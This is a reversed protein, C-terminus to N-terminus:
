VEKCSAISEVTQEICKFVGFNGGGRWKLEKSIGGEEGAIVRELRKIAFKLSQESTDIGIYRRKLKHSVAATTGSGLYPDLVIDGQNTAIEIIRQLLSEPKPTDFLQQEDEFLAMFQKKAATTTGVDEAKWLTQPVVSPNSDRLFKKIRPVKNGDEGFWINDQEIEKSMRKESYIWCRGRPPWHEKGTKPSVISYYQTKAAHGAQATATISQWPGRPDNDPNKYRNVLEPAEIKNRVAKFRDPNKAYVLIYEHNHSFATRNERTSRHEWVVTAVYKEMGFSTDCLVKLYAMEADDISIWISGDDALMEWVLPLLGSMEGIWSDHTANDKYCAYEEGNRYPPDMYICKVTGAMTLNLYKLVRKNEGHFILGQRENCFGPMNVTDPKKAVLEQM